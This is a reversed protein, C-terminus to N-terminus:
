ILNHTEHFQVAKNLIWLQEEMTEYMQLDHYDCTFSHVAGWLWLLFSSNELFSYYKFLMLM